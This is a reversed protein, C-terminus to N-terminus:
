GGSGILGILHLCSDRQTVHAMAEVFASKRAFEGNRVARSILTLKQYITQGAGIHMHGVESNGMQGDPLGVAEGSAQLLTHPFGGWLRDFVPTRAARIANGEQRTTYGFGDLVVLTVLRPGAAMSWEGRGRVIGM